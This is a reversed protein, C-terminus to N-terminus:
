QTFQTHSNVTFVVRLTKYETGNKYNMVTTISDDAHIVDFSVEDGNIVALSANRLANLKLLEKDDTIDIIHKEMLSIRLNISAEDNKSLIEKDEDTIVVTTREEFRNDTKNYTIHKM